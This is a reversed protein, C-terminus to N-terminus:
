SVRIASRRRRIELALRASPPLLEDMTRREDLAFAAFVGKWVDLDVYRNEKGRESWVIGAMSLSVGCLCSLDMADRLTVCDLVPRPCLLHQAFLNAEIESTTHQGGPHRLLVHGLEHAVAFRWPGGGVDLEEDNLIITHSARGDKWRRITLATRSIGASFPDFECGMIERATRFSILTTDHCRECIANVDVPLRDIKAALLVRYAQRTARHYDPRYM